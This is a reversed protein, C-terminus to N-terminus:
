SSSVSVERTLYDCHVNLQGYSKGLGAVSPNGTMGGCMPAFKESAVSACESPRACDLTTNQPPVVLVLSCTRASPSCVVM